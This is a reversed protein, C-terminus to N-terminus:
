KTKRRKPSHIVEPGWPIYDFPPLCEGAHPDAVVGRTLYYRHVGAKISVGSSLHTVIKKYWDKVEPPSLHVVKAPMELWERHCSVVAGGLKHRGEQEREGHFSITIPSNNVRPSIDYKGKNYGGLIETIQYDGFIWEPRLFFFIGRDLQSVENRDIFRPRPLPQPEDLRVQFGNDLAFALVSAVDGACHIFERDPM